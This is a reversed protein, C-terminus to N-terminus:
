SQLANYIANTAERNTDETSTYSSQSGVMIEHIQSLDNKVHTFDEDFAQHAQSFASAAQGQWGGMLATIQQQLTNQCQNVNNFAEDIKDAAVKMAARDVSSNGSM